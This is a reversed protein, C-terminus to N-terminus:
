RTSGIRRLMQEIEARRCDLCTNDRTVQLWQKPTVDSTAVIEECIRCTMYDMDSYEETSDLDWYEETTFHATYQSM